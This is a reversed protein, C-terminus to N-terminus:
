VKSGIFYAVQATVEVKMQKGSRALSYADVVDKDTYGVTKLAKQAISFYKDVQEEKCRKYLYYEIEEGTRLGDTEDDWRLDRFLSKDEESMKDIIKSCVTNNFVGKKAENIFEVLSRM